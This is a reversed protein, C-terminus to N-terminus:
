WRSPPCMRRGRAGESSPQARVGMTASISYTVGGSSTAASSRWRLRCSPSPPGVQQIRDHLLELTTEAGTMTRDQPQADEPKMATGLFGRQRAVLKRKDDATDDLGSGMRWALAAVACSLAYGGWNSVSAVLPADSPVVCGIQEGLNITRVIDAHLSGMGLENGGDGIGVTAVGGGPQAVANLRGLLSPGM